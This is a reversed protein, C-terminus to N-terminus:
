EIQEDNETRAVINKETKSSTAFSDMDRKYNSSIRQGASYWLDEIRGNKDLGLRKWASVNHDYNAQASRKEQPTLGEAWVNDPTGFVNRLRRRYRNEYRWLEKLLMQVQEKFNLDEAFYGNDFGAHPNGLEEHIGNHVFVVYNPDDSPYVYVFETKRFGKSYELKFVVRKLKEPQELEKAMARRSLFRKM